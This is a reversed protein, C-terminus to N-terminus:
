RIDNTHWEDTTKGHVRWVPTQFIFHSKLDEFCTLISTVQNSMLLLATLKNQHELSKYRYCWIWSSLIYLEAHFNEFTNGTLSM